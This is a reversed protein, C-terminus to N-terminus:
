CWTCTPLLLIGTKILWQQWQLCLASYNYLSKLLLASLSIMFLIRQTKTEWVLGKSDKLLLLFAALQLISAAGGIINVVIAPQTWLISLAYAPICAGNMLRFVTRGHNFSKRKEIMKYLVAFVIFTFFGNYQFHLYFYIANYYLPTGAKGTAILPGTAFPGIASIAFYFFAALLFSWSPQFFSPRDASRILIGAYFGSVISLTSFVISVAGYGQFPFSLLMGYASVLM